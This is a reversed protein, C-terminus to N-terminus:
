NSISANTPIDQVTSDTTFQKQHSSVKDNAKSSKNKLTLQEEEEDKAEEEIYEKFPKINSTNEKAEPFALM